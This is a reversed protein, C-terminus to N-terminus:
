LKHLETFTDIGNTTGVVYPGTPRIAIKPDTKQADPANPVTTELTSTAFM